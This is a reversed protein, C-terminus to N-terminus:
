LELGVLVWRAQDWELEGEVGGQRIVVGGAYMLNHVLERVGEEGRERKDLILVLKSAELMDAALDLLATLSERIDLGDAISSASMAQM